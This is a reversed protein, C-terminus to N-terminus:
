IQYVLYKSIGSTRLKQKSAGFFLTAVLVGIEKKIYIKRDVEPMSYLFVFFSLPAEMRNIQATIAKALKKSQSPSFTTNIYMDSLYKAEKKYYKELARDLEQAGLLLKRVDERRYDEKSKFDIILSDIHCQLQGNLTTLRQMRSVNGLQAEIAPYQRKVIQNTFDHFHLFALAYLSFIKYERTNANEDASFEELHKVINKVNRTAVGRFMALVGALDLKLADNEAIYLRDSVRRETGPSSMPAYRVTGFAQM